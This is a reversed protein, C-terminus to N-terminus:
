LVLIDKYIESSPNSVIEGTSSDVLRNEDRYFYVEDSTLEMPEEFEIDPYFRYIVKFVEPFEKPLDELVSDFQEVLKNCIDNRSAHGFLEEWIEMEYFREDSQKNEGILYNMIEQKIKVVSMNNM